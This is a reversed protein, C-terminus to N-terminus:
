SPVLTNVTTGFIDPSGSKYFVLYFSGITAGALTIAYSGNVDSTTQGLVTDDLTRFLKVTAGSVPVGVADTALGTVTFVTQTGKPSRFSPRRSLERALGPVALGGPIGRAGSAIPM